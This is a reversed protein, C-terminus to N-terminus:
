GAFGGGTLFAQGDPTTERGLVANRHPFRGFRQVIDRHAIAYKHGDTVAGPAPEGPPQPSADPYKSFFHHLSPFRTMTELTIRRM